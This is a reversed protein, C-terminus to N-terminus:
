PKLARYVIGEKHLYEM